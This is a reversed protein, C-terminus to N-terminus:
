IQANTSRDVNTTLQVNSSRNGGSRWAGPGEAASLNTGSFDYFLFYKVLSTLPM